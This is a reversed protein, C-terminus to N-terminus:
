FSPLLLSNSIIALAKDKKWSATFQPHHSICLIDQKCKVLTSISVFNTKYTLHLALKGVSSIVVTQTCVKIYM